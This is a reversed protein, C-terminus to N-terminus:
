RDASCGGRAPPGPRFSSRRHNFTQELRVLRRGDEDLAGPAARGEQQDGVMAVATKRLCRAAQAQGRGLEVPVDGVVDADQRDGAPDRLREVRREHGLGVRAQQDVAVARRMHRLGDGLDALRGLDWAVPAERRARPLSADIGQEAGIVVRDRRQEFLADACALRGHQDRQVAEGRDVHAGGPGPVDAQEVVPVAPQRPRQELEQGLVGRERDAILQGIRDVVLVVVGQRDVALLAPQQVDPDLDPLVQDGLGGALLLPRLADARDQLLQEPAQRGRAPYGPRASARRPPRRGPCAGALQPLHRWHQAGKRLARASRRRGAM